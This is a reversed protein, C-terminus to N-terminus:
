ESKWSLIKCKWKNTKKDKERHVVATVTMKMENLTSTSEIRFFDSSIRILDSDIDLDKCGPVEKYWNWKAHSLDYVYNSDSTVRRYDYIAEALDERESPLLSTIVPLEATNINIKGEYKGSEDNMGWITMYPSISPAQVIGYYIDPTVGKVLLLEDLDFVPGNRCSYPPDFAQYYDSEAGVLGTILDDDNSDLWDKVSNIVSTPYSEDESEDRPVLRLFRDWLQAQLSNIEHGGSSKLLANVQIRGLEDSIKVKVNGSEFPIDGLIENIKESDAWDEQLSDTDSEKKDKVLIAMAIDIGSSAMHSLTIRDRAVATFVVATRGRRNLELASAILLTIITLTILLAAGRNNGAPMTLM